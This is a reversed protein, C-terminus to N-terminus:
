ADLGSLVAVELRIQGCACIGKHAERVVQRHPADVSSCLEVDSALGLACVDRRFRAIPSSGVVRPKPFVHLLLVAATLSRWGAHSRSTSLRHEAGLRWSCVPFRM